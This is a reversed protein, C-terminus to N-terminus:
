KKYLKIKPNSKKKNDNMWTLSNSINTSTKSQTYFITLNLKLFFNLLKEIFIFSKTKSPNLLPNRVVIQLIPQLPNFFFVFVVKEREIM